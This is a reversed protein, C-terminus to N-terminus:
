GRTRALFWVGATVFFVGLVQAIRVLAGTQAHFLTLATAYWGAVVPHYLFPPYRRTVARNSADALEFGESLHLTPHGRLLLIAGGMYARTDLDLSSSATRWAAAVGVCVCLAAVLGRWRQAQSAGVTHTADTVRAIVPRLRLGRLQLPVGATIPPVLPVM